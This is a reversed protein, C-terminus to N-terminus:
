EHALGLRKVCAALDNFDSCSCTQCPFSPWTISAGISKAALRGYNLGPNGKTSRDNDAAITVTTQPPLNSRLTLAVSKLNNATMTTVVSCGSVEFITAGTAWGETLYVHSAGALSGIISAAGKIRGRKMFLKTGEPNIRQLNVLEKDAYLPVLLTNGQQRLGHPQVGKNLLYPHSPDAAQANAWEIRAKIAAQDQEKRRVIERECIAKAAAQRTRHAAIPDHEGALTM